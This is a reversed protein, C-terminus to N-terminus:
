KRVFKSKLWNKIPPYVRDRVLFFLMLSTYILTVVIVVNSVAVGFFTLVGVGASPVVKAVEVLANLHGQEM